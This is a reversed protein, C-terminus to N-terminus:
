RGSFIGSMARRTWGPGVQQDQDVAKVLRVILLLPVLDMPKAGNSWELRHSSAVRQPLLLHRPLGHSRRLLRVLSPQYTQAPRVKLFRIERERKRWLASNEHSSRCRGSRHHLQFIIPAIKIYNISRTFCLKLYTITFNVTSTFKTGFRSARLRLGPDMLPLRM